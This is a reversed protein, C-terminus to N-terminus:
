ARDWVKQGLSKHKVLGGPSESVHELKIILAGSLLVSLFGSRVSTPICGGVVDALNSSPHHLSLMEAVPLLLLLM